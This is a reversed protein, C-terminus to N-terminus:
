MALPPIGRPGKTRVTRNSQPIAAITPTTKNPLPIPTHTEAQIPRPLRTTPKMAKIATRITTAPLALIAKSMKRALRGGRTHTVNRAIATGAQATEQRTIAPQVHRMISITAKLGGKPRLIPLALPHVSTTAPMLVGVM